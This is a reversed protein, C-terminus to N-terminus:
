GAVYAVIGVGGAFLAAACEARAAREGAAYAQEDLAPPGGVLPRLAEPLALDLLEYDSLDHLFPAFAVRLGSEEHAALSDRALAMMPSHDLTGTIGGRIREAAGLLIAARLAPGDMARGHLTTHLAWLELPLSNETGRLLAGYAHAHADVMGPMLWHGRGDVVEAARGLLAARGEEDWAVGAVRGDAVLVTGARAQPCVLAGDIVVPRM